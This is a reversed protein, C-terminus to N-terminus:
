KVIFTGRMLKEGDVYVTEVEIVEVNAQMQFYFWALATFNKTYQKANM